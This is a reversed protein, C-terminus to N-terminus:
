PVGCARGILRSHRRWRLDGPGSMELLPSIVPQPLRPLNPVHTVRARSVGYRRAIDARSNVVGEDLLRQFELALAIASRVASKPTQRFLRQTAIMPQLLSLAFRRVLDQTSDPDLLWDLCSM